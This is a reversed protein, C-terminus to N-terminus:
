KLLRPNQKGGTEELTPLLCNVSLKGNPINWIDSDWNEFIESLNDNLKVDEGNNDDSEGDTVIVLSGSPGIKMDSRAKNANLDGDNDGIVRGNADKGIGGTVTPGLSVCNEVLDDNYGAIGGVGYDGSVRATNYCYSVEGLNHGIVGGVYGQGSVSGTNYCNIVKNENHGVVGGVSGEGSVTGTNYSESVLGWNEGVIGGANDGTVIGSNYSKSVTGFDSNYGVVGGVAGYGTVSGDFSCNIISGENFGAVGGADYGDDIIGKVKLNKVEGDGGVIGFLGANDVYTSVYLGKIEKNSGDFTGNFSSWGGDETGIPTWKFNGLNLNATLTIIEGVFKDELSGATGNVINAFGLLAEPTGISFPGTGDGYWTYDPVGSKKWGVHTPPDDNSMSCSITFVLVAAFVIIGSLNLSKKMDEELLILERLKKLFYILNAGLPISGRKLSQSDRTRVSLRLPWIFTLLSEYLKFDM